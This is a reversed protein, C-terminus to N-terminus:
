TGCPWTTAWASSGAGSIPAPGAAPWTTSCPWSCTRCWTRRTGTPSASPGCTATCATETCTSSGCCRRPRRPRPLRLPPRTSGSRWTSPRITSPLAGNRRPVCDIGAVYRVMPLPLTRGSWRNGHTLRGLHRVVSLGAPGPSRASGGRTRSTPSGMGTRAGCRAAGGGAHHRPAGRGGGQGNRARGVHALNGQHDELGGGASPRGSANDLNGQVSRPPPSHVQIACAGTRWGTTTAEGGNPRHAARTPARRRLRAPGGTAMAWVACSVPCTVSACPATRCPTVTVAAPGPSADGAM